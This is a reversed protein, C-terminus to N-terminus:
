TYPELKRAWLNIEPLPSAQDWPNGEVDILEYGLQSLLQIMMRYQPLHPDWIEVIINNIDLPTNNLASLINPERGEVDIKLLKIATTLKCEKVITPLSVLPTRFVLDTEGSLSPANLSLWSRDHGLQEHLFMHGDEGDCAACYLKLNKFSNLAFNDLIKACLSPQPECAIVLGDNGIRQAAILSFFGIHAGIDVFTDSPALLKQILLKTLPEAAVGHRLQQQTYEWPDLAM